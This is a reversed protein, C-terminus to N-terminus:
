SATSAAALGRRKAEAFTAFVPENDVMREDLQLAALPVDLAAAVNIVTGSVLLFKAGSAGVLTDIPRMGFRRWLRAMTFSAIAYFRAIEHHHALARLSLALCTQLLEPSREDPAVILRGVEWSGAGAVAPHSAIRPDLREAATLRHGSPVFRMTAVLKEGRYLATVVGV